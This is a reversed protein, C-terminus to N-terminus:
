CRSVTTGLRKRAALISRLLEVDIDLAPHAGEVAIRRVHFDKGAGEDEYAVGKGFGVRFLAVEVSKDM